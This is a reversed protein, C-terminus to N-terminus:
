SPINVRQVVIRYGSAVLLPNAMRALAQMVEIVSEPAIDIRDPRAGGDLNQQKISVKEPFQEVLVRKLEPMSIIEGVTPM